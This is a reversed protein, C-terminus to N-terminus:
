SPRHGPEHHGAGDLAPRTALRQQLGAGGLRQQVADRPQQPEASGFVNSTGFGVSQAEWCLAPGAVPGPQPSFDTGTIIQPSAEERDFVVGFFPECAGLKTIYRQTFPRFAPNSNVYAYKVPFTMIWSTQSKSGADLVYENTVRDALLVAAVADDGPSPGGAGTWDSQFLFPGSIV